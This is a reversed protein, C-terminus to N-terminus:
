AAGKRMAYSLQRSVISALEREDMGASPYVNVTIGKKDGALLTIMAKDRKSLGDPDLPEIREPRGAEALLGLTGRASPSVIGGRAFLPINPTNLTFGKGALPGLPIGFIKDPLTLNFSLNNWKGIIFNLANIFATKIGGFLGSAASAIKGPLTKIYDIFSTFKAKAETIITTLKDTVWTWIKSGATLLKGPLETIFTIILGFNTKMVEIREKLFDVIWGWIKAGKEALKAPLEKIFTFVKEWLGYYFEFTDKAIDFIWDWIKKGIELLKGPLEKIFTFVAEWAGIYLDVAKKFTDVVWDWIKAGLEGIKAPLGKIFALIEDWNKVVALVFLGIPGTLVALVLPWNEKLWSIVNGVVEKIKDLIKPFIEKAWDVIKTFIKSLEEPLNKFFEIIKDKYPLLLTIALIIAGIPGGAFALASGFKRLGVSAIGAARGLAGKAAATVKSARGSNAILPTATGSAVGVNRIERAAQQSSIYVGRMAEKKQRDIIMQKQLEVRTLGSGKRVGIFPDGQKLASLQAKTRGLAAGIQKFGGFFRSFNGFILAFFLKAALMVSGFAAAIPLVVSSIRLLFQGFPSALFDNLAKLIKGLITFFITISGAETFKEVVLSFQILFEGFAPLSGSLNEGIRQFIDTVTNLQKFFTGLEPNDALTLFGGTINGLLDLFLTGNEAADAFFEKVPKGDIKELNKFKESVKEFYDLFIQGGSGPGVNAKIIKGFGDFVNSFIRGLQSIILEATKFEEALEGTAEKAKLTEKWGGTLTVLWKGFKDILPEAANLLILFVEYLNNTADGLNTIFRDNTKWVKELRKLNEIQTVTEAFKLAVNGLVGGTGELLKKLGSFGNNATFLKTRILELAEILKPFLLKGAADRLEKVAPLFTNVIYEVFKRAEPSLDALADAYADTAGAADDTSNKLEKLDYAARRQAEKNDIIMTKLDEVADKREKDADIVGRQGKVQADLDPGLAANKAEQEKLDNNADIARRYNLDAEAFALEAEKRARSNPPLDAVRALAERAKELDLAAKQESIAADESDFALQQLEEKAERLSEVYKRNAETVRERGEKEANANDRILRAYDVQARRIKETLDKQKKAAATGSKQAKSGAAIAKGVGMFALKVTIMAQALATFAGALTVLAPLAAGGIISVLSILGTGVVGIAGSVAVLAPQLFYLKRTLSAFSRATNEANRLYKATFLGDGGRTAKSLGRQFSSGVRNGADEGVRDVNNFANAIDKEVGATIARVVVYADGVINAAM